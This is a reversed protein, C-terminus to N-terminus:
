HVSNGDKKKQKALMTEFRPDAYLNKLEPQNSIESISYGAELAKQIRELARGREGIQEYTTGARFMISADKPSLKLSRSAHLRAQATDGVMACYGGLLAHIEADGPNVELQKQALSVARRFHELAKERETGTWYYASALNGTVVHDTANLEIAKEYWRAADTYRGEIYNLTGLNSATRYSPRITYSREFMSRADTWRELYYYMGGLNNFGRYNDPTLETVKKFSRVADEYRNNRSYFVGLDNHAGWYDPRLDAARRYTQEATSLNGLAEYAKALGRYAEASSPDKKLAAEFLPIAADPKGTGAYVIGLTVNVPALDGGLSAARECESIAEQAWRVDKGFEYKRWLAEGLAAHALAYTSDERIAMRFALVAADINEETEYRLLSGRGRLYYEYAAPVSTGGSQLVDKTEPHLEMHLMELVSIVSENHLSTLSERRTDITASNIHRLSGADVLNLTLRYVDGIAQLSGDLVLNVGFAKRAEEASSTNGRRVETAPVVWLSGHLQELQALKSTMTETLGDCLAQKEPDNGINLFPLVALHKQDPVGSLGLINEVNRWVLTPGAAVVVVIVLLFLALPIMWRQRWLGPQRKSLVTTSTGALVSGIDARLDDLSQYRHEPNKKLCKQIIADVASSIGATKSSPLPPEEHLIQYLLAHEYPAEFPRAGTLLEYFVVGLAYIDARHDVQEGRAQEPPLYAMTGVTSGAKTLDSRGSIKALGFDMIKIRGDDTVMINSSKIDRHVIQKAHAAALGEAAQDVLRLATQESVKGARESLADGQVYEMVFYLQEEYQGIDHITCIAPHNLSSASRAEQTFREQEIPSPALSDSLFKVAVDRDLRKDRGRYVVGMGGEGLKELIKYHSITQGIM